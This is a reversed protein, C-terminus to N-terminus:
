VTYKKIKGFNEGFFKIFNQCFTSFPLKGMLIILFQVIQWLAFKDVNKIVEADPPKAGLRGRGGFAVGMVLLNKSSWSEWSSLEEPRM